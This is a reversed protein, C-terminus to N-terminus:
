RRNHHPQGALTPTGSSSAAVNILLWFPSPRSRHRLCIRSAKWIKSNASSNLDAMIYTGLRLPLQTEIPCLAPTNLYARSSFVSQCSSPVGRERSIKLTTARSDSRVFPAKLTRWFSTITCHRNHPPMLFYFLHRFLKCDQYYVILFGCASKQM